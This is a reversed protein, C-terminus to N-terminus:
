VKGVNHKGKKVLKTLGFFSKFIGDVEKITQQAMNSNLTKYNESTKLLHYNENYSLYKKTTFYHQRVNYIAQNTLNKATRSLEKLVKYDEKSLKKLQQKIVGYM